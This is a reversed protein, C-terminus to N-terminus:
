VPVALRSIAELLPGEQFPKGIYDNVGLNFARNRHKEGTRSTIMIIPLDKMDPNNRIAGAVEFGDMRPMEIDLLILDPLNETLRAMAEVGDRASDVDYGQRSLLRNTVKRVTVSDDVVLIKTARKQTTIDHAQEIDGHRSFRRYLAAPDIIIVVRGDGLITAGNVGLLGAFQIGLSKTIIERTGVLSDVHLALRDDGREVLIVPCREGLPKPKNRDLLSGLYMVKHEAGGYRLPTGNRYCDILKEPEVMSIGDISPLPMAYLNNGVEVMLARNISQNFPLRLSFRTGLGKESGIMISGGLQRVESNVVDMGVGRGSIKTVTEATSFGSRLILQMAEQDSLVTDPTILNKEIAHNKVSQVDIGRGDDAVELIIDSGDRQISIAVKGTEPKGAALRAEPSEEIGHSIANRLMHELPAQMRELMNRDIEDEANTVELDVSKGLEDSAQRVTKRLRPVLRSFSEMRAQMLQEQLETQTRAQQLLLRESEKSGQQLVERLDMLDTATEVLSHSLQTLESYQDMELPDFDTNDDHQENQHRSIIQSQTEIDLRRLQDKIRMTATNMEDLLKNSDALQQEIRSRSISAEGALNILSELREAPIRVTDATQFLAKQQRAAEAKVPPTYMPFTKVPAVIPSSTNVEHEKATGGLYDPLIEIPQDTTAVPKQPALDPSWQKLQRILLAPSPQPKNQSIANLMSEIIDHAQQILALPTQEPKCRRSSIHQYIDELSHCLDAMDHLEAMLAGGKLTHLDRQLKDVHKLNNIDQLWIELTAAASEAREFGEELFLHLLNLDAHEEM